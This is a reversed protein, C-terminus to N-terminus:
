AGIVTRTKKDPDPASIIGAEELEDVLRAARNYGIRLKRQLFSTSVYQTSQIIEKAQSFLEDEGSNSDSDSDGGSEDVEVELIADVFQATRQKKCFSVVAKVEQESVFVGQARIPKLTGVPLYLMDGRGLLKEAGAMDIITRSDIQSQVSFSIRSPINAKILGTVVNVSPRQTAVVLHIGTARAMQALRCITNEVEQSAVMMLDALEDIIVVIYPLKDRPGFGDAIEDVSFEKGEIEVNHEEVFKNYGAIDKVGCAAFLEYRQEMEVLAWQKLTASAKHPNTVVPALLHPIDEYLSLEVKKPDIMLFKVEDPTSRLLISIIIVNICVSKGSGTAGAILLHPMRELQLSVPEGTITMGMSCLLKSPHIMFDTQEIITRMNLADVNANPVEIGILAKGPIPAEIRVHPAALQLAIDQALGTIKSIKVGVGPQLEYRTVAPGPSVNVVQADVGFSSLTIELIKAKEQAEQISKKSRNQLKVPKDLLTLPPLAYDSKESVVATGTMQQKKAEHIHVEPLRPAAIMAPEPEDEPEPIEALKPIELRQQQHPAEVAQSTVKTSVRTVKSGRLPAVDELGRIRRLDTDDYGHTVITRFFLMRVVRGSIRKWRDTFRNGEHRHHEEALIDLIFGIGRAFAQVTRRVSFNFVLVTSVLASAALFILAGYIGLLKYLGYAGVVGILGGGNIPMPFHLATQPGNIKLELYIAFAMFATIVGGIVSKYNDKNTFFLAVAGSMLFWALYDVASGALNVAFYDVVWFGVTGTSMPYKVSVYVFLGLFLMVLATVERMQDTFPKPIHEKAMVDPRAATSKRQRSTTSKSKPKATSKRGRSGGTKTRIRSM